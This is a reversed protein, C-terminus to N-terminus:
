MSAKNALTGKVAKSVADAFYDINHKTLGAMSIRGDQTMYIHAYKALADVQEPTVTTLPPRGDSM